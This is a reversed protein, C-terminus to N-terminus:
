LKSWGRYKYSYYYVGSNSKARSNSNQPGETDFYIWAGDAASFVHPYASTSVWLWGLKDNHAWFNKQSAGSTYLWGLKSHYIWPYNYDNSYGFWDEQKWGEANEVKKSYRWLRNHRQKHRRDNLVAEFMEANSLSGYSSVKSKDLPYDGMDKWISYMYSAALYEAPRM